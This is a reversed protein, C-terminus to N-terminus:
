NQALGLVVLLSSKSSPIVYYCSNKDQINEKYFTHRVNQIWGNFM